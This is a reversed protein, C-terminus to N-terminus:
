WQPHVESVYRWAYSLVNGDKFNICKGSKSAKYIELTELARIRDTDFSTKILSTKDFDAKIDPDTAYTSLATTHRKKNVDYRHEAIRKKVSRKTSGIYILDTQSGHNRVPISYVGPARLFDPKDKANGLLSYISQTRSFTLDTGKKRAIEKYIDHVGRNYQVVTRRNPGSKSRDRARAAHHAANTNRLNRALKRVLGRRYGHSAAIDEIHALETLTDERKSNHTYARRVLARFAAIKYPYPDESGAPIYMPIYDPKYYVRTEINNGRLQITVDLFHVDTSSIQDLKLTLGYPNDNVSRLFDHVNPGNKWIIMVDDVYRRYLIIDHTFRPIVDRELQRLILECLDGSIPSGMPVGRKQLYTANDFGFLSNYCVLHALELVHKRHAPLSYKALLVDRLACFCPEIKISPYLAQFDLVTVHANETVQTRKLADVLERSNKVTLPYDQLHRALIRHLETELLRTPARAKDLISRLAPTPKHTKAFAFLRPTDSSAVVARGLGQAKALPTCTFRVVRAHLRDVYNDAVRESNTDVIYQRLMTKYTEEKLLVLARNKDARLLIIREEALWKKTKRIHMWINGKRCRRNGSIRMAAKWRYHEKSVEDMGCVMREIDPMVTELLPKDSGPTYTPGHAVTEIVYHPPVIDDWCVLPTPPVNKEIPKQKSM